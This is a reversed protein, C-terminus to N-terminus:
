RVVERSASLAARLKAQHETTIKSYHVEPVFWQNCWKYGIVTTYSYVVYQLGDFRKDLTKWEDAPLQGRSLSDAFPVFPMGHFQKGQDCFAQDQTLWDALTWHDTPKSRHKYLKIEPSPKFANPDGAKVSDLWKVLDNM